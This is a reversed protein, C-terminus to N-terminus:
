QLAPTVSCKTGEGFQGGLGHTRTWQTRNSLRTWTFLTGGQFMEDMLIGAVGYVPGRRIRLNPPPSNLGYKVGWNAEKYLNFLHPYLHCQEMWKTQQPAKHEAALLVYHSRDTQLQTQQEDQM